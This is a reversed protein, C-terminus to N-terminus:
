DFLVCNLFIFLYFFLFFSSLPYDYLVKKGQIIFPSTQKSLFTGGKLQCFSTPKKSKTELSMMAKLQLSFMPIWKRVKLFVEMCGPISRCCMPKFLCQSNATSVNIKVSKFIKITCVKLVKLKVVAQYNNDKNLTISKTKSLHESSIQKEFHLKMSTEKTAGHLQVSVTEEV